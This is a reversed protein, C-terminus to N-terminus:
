AAQDTVIRRVTRIRVAIHGLFPRLFKHGLETQLLMFLIM